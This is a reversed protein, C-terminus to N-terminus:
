RPFDHTAAIKNKVIDGVLLSPPLYELDHVAMTFPPL